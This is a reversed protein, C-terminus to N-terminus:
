LMNANCAEFPGDPNSRNGYNGFALTPLVRGKEWSASFATTWKEASGFGLSAPFESFRCDAGGRLLLNKGARLVALDMHGDGDIDLPYAGTVGRLRLADPTAERFSLPGGRRGRPRRCQVAWM